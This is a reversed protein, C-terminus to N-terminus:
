LVSALGEAIFGLAFGIALAGAVSALPAAAVARRFGQKYDVLDKEVKATRAELVRMREIINDTTNPM